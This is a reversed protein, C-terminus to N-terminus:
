TWFEQKVQGDQSIGKLLLGESMIRDLLLAELLLQSTGTELDGGLTQRDHLGDGGVGMGGGFLQGFNNPVLDARDGPLCGIVREAGKSVLTKNTPDLGGARRSTVLVANTVVVM